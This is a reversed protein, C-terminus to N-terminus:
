NHFAADAQKQFFFCVVRPYESSWNFHNQLIRLSITRKIKCIYNEIMKVMTRKALVVCLIYFTEGAGSNESGLVHVGM